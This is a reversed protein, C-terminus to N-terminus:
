VQATLISSNPAWFDWNQFARCIHSGSSDGQKQQRSIGDLFFVNTPRRALRAARGSLGTRFVKRWLPKNGRYGRTKRTTVLRRLLSTSEYSEPHQCDRRWAADERQQEPTKQGKVEEQVRAERKTRGKGRRHLVSAQSWSETWAQGPNCTAPM